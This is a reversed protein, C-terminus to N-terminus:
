TSPVDHTAIVGAALLREIEDGLGAEELIEHTHQGPLPAPGGPAAPTGRFVPAPRVDRLRGAVPHDLQRFLGNHVVQPDDVLEDLARARAFPVDLENFLRQAEALTLRSAAPAIEQQYVERWQPRHRMRQEVTAFRPDEALHGAGLARCLAGFEADSLTMTVGWGDSFPTVNGAAGVPPRADVDGGELILDAAADAWLFAVGADLMALEIHQGAGDSSRERALLAATIAQCGMHATIKDLMLQNVQQPRAPDAPDIRGQVAAMGSYFQIIPDYAREGARPGTQGFGSISLYVLGPNDAALSDYDLGLRGVVGPRFNQIVVDARAALRRTIRRGDPTSLDVAISRKGRNLVHFFGSLGNRQSGVHRQIDGDLREVKIVAAGQDALLAGTLPGSVVASLDLVAIGALPGTRRADLPAGHRRREDGIM